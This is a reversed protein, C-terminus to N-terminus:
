KDYLSIELFQCHPLTALSTSSYRESPRLYIQLMDRRPAPHAPFSRRYLDREAKGCASSLPGVGGERRSEGLRERRPARSRVREEEEVEEEEESQEAGRAREAREGRM